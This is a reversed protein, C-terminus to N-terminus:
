TMPKIIHTRRINNLAITGVISGAMIMGYPGCNIICGNSSTCLPQFIPVDVVKIIYENSKHRHELNNRQFPPCM